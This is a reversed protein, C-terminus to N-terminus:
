YRPRRQCNCCTYSASAACMSSRPVPSWNHYHNPTQAWGPHRVVLGGGRGVCNGTRVSHATVLSPGEQPKREHWDDRETGAGADGHQGCGMLRESRPKRVDYSTLRAWRRIDKGLGSWVPARPSHLRRGRRRNRNVGSRQVHRQCCSRYRETAWCGSFRSLYLRGPLDSYM